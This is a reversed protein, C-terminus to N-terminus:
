IRDSPLDWHSWDSTYVSPTLSRQRHQKGLGTLSHHSPSVSCLVASCPQPCVSGWKATPARVPLRVSAVSSSLQECAPQVSSVVQFSLPGGGGAHLCPVGGM